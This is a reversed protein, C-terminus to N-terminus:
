WPRGEVIETFDVERSDLNFRYRDVREVVPREGLFAELAGREAADLWGPPDSTARFGCIHALDILLRRQEPALLMHRSRFFAVDPDIDIVSRLWYRSLSTAIADAAGPGARDKLHVTRDENDWYPAVDPGVRIGDFVGISPVVPAGCALLYVDDGAADRIAQVAGRYAAERGAPEAYRGPLAAAYLFDLKLYRYGWGVVNTVLDVLWELTDPRTVDLAYAPQGWNEAALVPDGNDSRLVMDPYRRLLDSDANALFPALWIGATRGSLRIHDALAAMGSPFDRNAEWDGISQQWGDDVQVVDFALDGLDALVKRLEIETVDGYYSYWSCWVPGPDGARRGFSDGLATAFDAFVESEPGTASHWPGPGDGALRDPQATVWGDIGLSGLLTIEGSGIEVAGLGSGGPFPEDLHVPDTSQRRHAPVLPYAVPGLRPRWGTVSWSHWGHQYFRGADAPM